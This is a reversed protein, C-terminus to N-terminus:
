GERYKYERILFFAAAGRLFGVLGEQLQERQLTGRAFRPLKPKWVHLKENSHKQAQGGNFFINWINVAIFWCFHNVEVTHLQFTSEMHPPCARIQESSLFGGRASPCARVCLGKWSVSM